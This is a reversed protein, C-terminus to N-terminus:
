AFVLLLRRSPTITKNVSAPFLRVKPHDIGHVGQRRSLMYSAALGYYAGFLHIVITGGMDLAKFVHIVLHQNAAYIPVQQPSILSSLLTLWALYTQDYGPTSTLLQCSLFQHGPIYSM